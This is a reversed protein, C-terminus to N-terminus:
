ENEAEAQAEPFVASTCCSGPVAQLGEAGELIHFVQVPSDPSVAFPEGAPWWPRRETSLIIVLFGCRWANDIHWLVYHSLVTELLSTDTLAM